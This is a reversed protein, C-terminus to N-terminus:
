KKEKKSSSVSPVEESSASAIGLLGSDSDTASALFESRMQNLEDESINRWGTGVPILKGVIVNEKLGKLPDVLGEIAANVLM